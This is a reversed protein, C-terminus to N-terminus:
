QNTNKKSYIVGGKASPAKLAAVPEVPPSTPKAPALTIHTHNEMWALLSGFFTALQDGLVSPELGSDGLVIKPSNATILPSFLEIADNILEAYTGSKHFLKIKENGNTDDIEIKHGCKTQIIRNKVNDGSAGENAAPAGAFYVPQTHDGEEFFCWVRDGVDPVLASGSSQSTQFFPDAYQAWPIAKEDIEDYVSHIRVKVRKSNLPDDNAVVNGRYMGSFKYDYPINNAMTM